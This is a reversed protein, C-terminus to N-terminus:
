LVLGFALMLRPAALPHLSFRLLDFTTGAVVQQLFREYLFLWVATAAGALAYVATMLWRARRGLALRARPPAVRRRQVGAMALWARASVLLANLPRDSPSPSARP